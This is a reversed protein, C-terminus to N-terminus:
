AISQCAHNNKNKEIKKKKEKSNEGKREGKEKRRKETNNKVKEWLCSTIKNFISRATTPQSQFAGLTYAGNVESRPSATNLCQYHFDCSWSDLSLFV